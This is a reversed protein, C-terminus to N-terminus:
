RSLAAAVIAKLRLDPSEKFAAPEVNLYRAANRAIWDTVAVRYRRGPQFPRAADAFLTEGGREAFPTGPGQNARRMWGEVQAGDFEGIFITGDFRVCADFAFRTVNGAPLGAGFTTNSIFAVDAKAATRVM